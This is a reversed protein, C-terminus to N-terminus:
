LVSVDVGDIDMDKVHEEPIYGGPRVDDVTGAVSLKEPEDFRTGAQSGGAFHGTAGVGDTFWWDNGDDLRVVQPARDCFRPEVRSTWLDPREFVHDDSSIIRYGAM